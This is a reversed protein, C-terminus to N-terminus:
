RGIPDVTELSPELTGPAKLTSDLLKFNLGIVIACFHSLDIFDSCVINVESKLPGPRQQNTWQLLPPLGKLTLTRLNLLPHLLVFALDETLNLGSVFFKEPRGESLQNDLYQIVKKADPSDAYWYPISTWLVPHEQVMKDDDYSVILQHGKLWCSNLTPCNQPPCLKPGFLSIIFQVLDWHDRETLSEFHSCCLILLERPHAELWANLEVFAEKVSIQTYVGHAFFLM